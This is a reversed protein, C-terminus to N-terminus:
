KIGMMLKDIGLSKDKAIESSIKAVLIDNYLNDSFSGTPSEERFMSRQDKFVQKLMQAVFISVFEQKADTKANVRNMNLNINSGIASLPDIGTIFSSM